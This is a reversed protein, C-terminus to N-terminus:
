PNLFKIPFAFLNELSLIKIVGPANVVKFNDITLKSTSSDKDIISTFSLIGGSLGKFFSYESLIAQPLDSYIELYKKKNNKNSKLSIDLFKNNGFDGKSSIKVFKGKSIDGILKFNKLERSLSTQINEFNIDIEKNIKNLINKKSNQNLIKNLKSADYKKGNIKIKSHDDANIVVFGIM